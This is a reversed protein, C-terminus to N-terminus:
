VAVPPPASLQRALQGVIGPRKSLAILRASMGLVGSSSFRGAQAGAHIIDWVLALMAANTSNTSQSGLLLRWRSPSSCDWELGPCHEDLFLWIAGCVLLHSIRAAQGATCFPCPQAGSAQGLVFANMCLRLLAQLGTCHLNVAALIITDLLNTAMSDVFTLHEDSLRRLIPTIRDRILEYFPLPARSQRLHDKCQQQLRPAVPLPSLERRLRDQWMGLRAIACRNQWLRQPHLRLHDDDSGVALQRRALPLAALTLSCRAAAAQCELRVDKLGTTCGLEDLHAYFRYPPRYMPGKFLIAAARDLDQERLGDDAQVQAIYSLVPLAFMNHLSAARSWGLGMKAIFRCRDLYKLLPAAFADIDSVGPGVQIGLYKASLALKSPKWRPCTASIRKRMM